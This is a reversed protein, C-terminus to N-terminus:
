PLVSDECYAVSIRSERAPAHDPPFVEGYSRNDSRGRYRKDSRRSYSYSATCGQHGEEPVIDAAMAAALGLLAEVM